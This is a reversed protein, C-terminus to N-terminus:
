YEMRLGFFLATGVTTLAANDTTLLKAEGVLYSRRIGYDSFLNHASSPEMWNLLLMGGFTPGTSTSWGTGLKSLANFSYRIMQTEFGVFPVFVQSSMFKLQYKLSFGLSFIDLTNETIDGVPDLSYLNFSPGLSVVGISHLFRPEYEFGIGFNRVNSEYVPGVPNNNSDTFQTQIPTGLAQLSGHIDIGVTPNERDYLPISRDFRNTSSGHAPAEPEPESIALVEPEPVAPVSVEELKEPIAEPAAEPIDVLAETTMPADLTATEEAPPPPPARDPRAPAPATASKSAGPITRLQKPMGDSTKAASKPTIATSLPSSKLLDEPNETGKEPTGPLDGGSVMAEEPSAEMELISNINPNSASAPTALLILFSIPKMM